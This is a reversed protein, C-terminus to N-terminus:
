PQQSSIVSCSRDQWVTGNNVKDLQYKGGMISALIWIALFAFLSRWWIFDALIRRTGDRFKAVMLFSFVVIIINLLLLIYTSTKSKM